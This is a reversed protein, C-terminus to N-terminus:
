LRAALLGPALVTVMAEVDPPLANWMKNPAERVPEFVVFLWTVLVVDVKSPRRRDGGDDRENDHAVDRGVPRCLSVEELAVRLADGALSSAV